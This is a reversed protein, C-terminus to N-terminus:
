NRESELLVAWTTLTGSSLNKEEVSENHVELAKLAEKIANNNKNIDRRSYNRLQKVLENVVKGEKPHQIFLERMQELAEERDEDSLSKSKM